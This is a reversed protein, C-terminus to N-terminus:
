LNSTRLKRIPVQVDVNAWARKDTWPDGLYVERTPGAEEYEEFKTRWQLWGELGHYVLRTSVQEPDFVVSAVLQAPLEKLQLDSPLKAKPRGRVEICAEWRRSGEPTNPDELEYFFWKGPKMGNRKAWGSVERFEEKLMDGGTYPGVYSKSIVRYSPEKKIIIDVTM